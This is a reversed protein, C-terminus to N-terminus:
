VFLLISATGLMLAIFVWIGASSVFGRMATKDMKNERFYAAIERRRCIGIVLAAVAAAVILVMFTIDIAGEPLLKAARGLLDALVFNNFIHLVIAWLISYELTTYALVLGVLFAYPIQIINGHYLAFLLASVFVAMRKGYPRLMRLILGRFLIEEAFPGIFSIYLFMSVSGGTITANELAAMASLGVQNLLWELVPTILQVVLQAAVVFALLCFFNGTTMTKEKAWIEQRWFDRGKWMFLILLGIAIAFIYGWFNTTLTKLLEDMILDPDLVTGNIASDVGMMIDLIVGQIVIAMSVLENLIKYYVLLSWGIVSCERRVKLRYIREEM